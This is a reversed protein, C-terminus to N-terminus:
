RGLGLLRETWHPIASRYRNIVVGLVNTGQLADLTRRLDPGTTRGARTVVIVGDCRQAAIAATTTALTAPLDVIIFGNTEKLAELVGTFGPSRVAPAAEIATVGATLVSLPTRLLRQVAGQLPVTGALVDSLGPRAELGFQRALGDGSFGADVLTVAAGYDQALSTALATAVTTKGERASPSTVAIALPRPGSEAAVPARRLDKFGRIGVPGPTRIAPSEQQFRALAADGSEGVGAALQVQRVAEVLASAADQRNRLRM